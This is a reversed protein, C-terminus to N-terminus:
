RLRENFRPLGTAGYYVNFFDRGDRHVGGALHGLLMGGDAINALPVGRSLDPGDLKKEESM